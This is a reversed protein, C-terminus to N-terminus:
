AAERDAIRAAIWADLEDVPWAVARQGLKVPKPFSGSAMAAYLASRTLGTKELTEPLRLLQM